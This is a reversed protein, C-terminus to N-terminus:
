LKQAEIMAKAIRDLADAKAQEAKTRRDMADIVRRTTDSVIAQIALGTISM